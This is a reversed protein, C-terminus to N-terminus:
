ESPAPAPSPEAAEAAEDVKMSAQLALLGACIGLLGGLASLFLGQDSDVNPGVQDARQLGWLCSLTLLVACLTMLAGMARRIAADSMVIYAGGFVFTAISMAFALKGSVDATGEVVQIGDTFWGTALGMLGVFGAAAGIVGAYTIKGSEM